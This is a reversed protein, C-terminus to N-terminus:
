LADLALQIKSRLSVVPAAVPKTLPEVGLALRIKDQFPIPTAPPLSSTNSAITSSDRCKKSDRGKECDRSKQSGSGNKSRAPSSSRSKSRSLSKSRSRKFSKHSSDRGGKGRTRDSDRKYSGDRDSERDRRRDDGRRRDRDKDKNKGRDRDKDRDKGRDRDRDMDKDRDKDKDRDRDRDRHRNRDRDTPSRDRKLAKRDSDDKYRDKSRRKRRDRDKASSRDRSSRDERDRSRKRRRSRLCQSEEESDSSDDGVNGEANNEDVTVVSSSALQAAFVKEEFLHKLMKARRLRVAKKQQVAAELVQDTIRKKLAEKENFIEKLRIISQSKMLHASGWFSNEDVDEDLNDDEINLLKEEEEDLIKIDIALQENSIADVAIIDVTDPPVNYVDEDQDFHTCSVPGSCTNEANNLDTDAINDTMVTEDVLNEELIPQECDVGTVLAVDLPVEKSMSEDVSTDREGAEGSADVDGDEIKMEAELIAEVGGEEESICAGDSVELILDKTLTQQEEDDVEMNQIDKYSDQDSGEIEEGEELVTQETVCVASLPQAPLEEICAIKDDQIETEETLDATESEVTMIEEVEEEIVVETVVETGADAVADKDCRADAELLEGEEGDQLSLSYAAVIESEDDTDIETTHLGDIFSATSATDDDEDDDSDDNINNDALTVPSNSNNENCGEEAGGEIKKSDMITSVVAESAEVNSQIDTVLITRPPIDSVEEDEDEDSSSGDGYMNGLLTLATSAVNGDTESKTTQMVTETHATSTFGYDVECDVKTQMTQLLTELDDAQVAIPVNDDDNEVISEDAIVEVECPISKIEPTPELGAWFVEDSLAKIFQFVESLDCEYNLFDFLPNIDSQKLKLFIEFQGGKQRINKVTHIIIDFEKKSMPLKMDNPINWLAPLPYSEREPRTWFEARNSQYGWAFSQDAEVEVVANNTDNTADVIVEEACDNTLLYNDIRNLDEEKCDLLDQFREMVLDEYYATEDNDLIYQLHGSLLAANQANDTIQQLDLRDLENRVDYRDIWVNADKDGSWLQLHSGQQINHAAADDCLITSKTGCCSIDQIDCSKYDVDSSMAYAM